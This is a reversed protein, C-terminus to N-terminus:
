LLLKIIRLSRTVVFEKAQKKKKKKKKNFKESTHSLATQNGGSPCPKSGSCMECIKCLYGRLGNNFYLWTYLHEYQGQDHICHNKSIDSQSTMHNGLTKNELCRDDGSTEDEESSEKSHCKDFSHNEINNDSAIIIDNQDHM